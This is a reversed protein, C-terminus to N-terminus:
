DLVFGSYPNNKKIKKRKNSNDVRRNDMRILHFGDPVFGRYQNNLQNEDYKKLITADTNIRVAEIYSEFMMSGIGSGVAGGLAVRGYGKWRLLTSVKGIEKYKNAFTTAAVNQGTYAGVIQASENGIAEFGRYFSKDSEEDIRKLSSYTGYIGLVAVGRNGWNTVWDSKYFNPYKGTSKKYKAVDIIEVPKIVDLHKRTSIMNSRTQELYFSRGIAGFQTTVHQGDAFVKLNVVNRMYVERLFANHVAFGSGGSGKSLTDFVDIGEDQENSNKTSNNSKQISALLNNFGWGYENVDVVIDTSAVIPNGHKDRILKGEDDKLPEGLSQSQMKYPPDTDVNETSYGERDIGNV